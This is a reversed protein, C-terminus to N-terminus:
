QGIRTTGVHLNTVRAIQTLPNATITANSSQIGGNLDSVVVYATTVGFSLAPTTWSASTAGTVNTGEWAWQYHLTSNGTAGVSLTAGTGVFVAQDQPQVIIAPDSPTVTLRVSSSLAAGATDTIRVSFMLGDDTIATAPTTYTDSTAGTINVGNTRWQYNAPTQHSVTVSFTAQKGVSVSQPAPHQTIFPDAGVGLTANRSAISGNSDTVTVQVQGHNDALQCNTRVYVPGNTGVNSGNFTWQYSLTTAGTATVNFQASQTVFVAIDQPQATITPDPAASGGGGVNGGAFVTSIEAPTLARAYLRFDGGAGQMWCCNPYPDDGFIYTGEHTWTFIAMWHYPSYIRYYPSPYNNTQTATGDTYSIVQTPTVTIAYHHWAGLSNNDNFFVVNTSTGDSTYTHFCTQEASNRGIRWSYAREATDSNAQADLITAQNYTTNYHAWGAFTFNTLYEIGYINTVAFYQNDYSLAANTVISALPGNTLVPYNTPYSFVQASNLWGSTDPANAAGPWGGLLIQMRLDDHWEFAGIDYHSGITRPVADYDLRATDFVGADRAPSNTLLHLDPITDYNQERRMVQITGNGTAISVTLHTNDTISQVRVDINTYAWAEGSANRPALTIYDGVVLDTLFLTNSGVISTTNNAYTFGTPHITRRSNTANVFQPNGGNLWGYGILAAANKFGNTDGVVYNNSVTMTSIISADVGFWGANVSSPNNGCLVFINNLMYGNTGTGYVSDNFNIIHPQDADNGCMYFTNNEFRMNPFDVDFKNGVRIFVNNRFTWSGVLSTCDPINACTQLSGLAATSNIIYNSEILHGYSPANFSQFCDPHTGGAGNDNYNGLVNGAIHNSYGWLYVWAEANDVNSIGNNLYEGSTGAINWIQVRSYNTFSSLTLYNNTGQDVFGVQNQGVWSLVACNDIRSNFANTAMWVVPANVFGGTFGEGIVFNTLVVYHRNIFVEQVRAGYSEFVIANTSATGDYAIWRVFEPYLGPLVYVHSPAAVTSAAKQMTLWATNTTLGNNSDNGTKSVYFTGTLGVGGGLSVNFNVPVYLKGATQLVLTGLTGGYASSNLTLGPGPSTPTFEDYWSDGDGNSELDVLYYATSAALTINTSIGSWAGSSATTPADGYAMLVGDSVRVVALHHYNHSIGNLSWRAINTVSIPAGGVTFKEGVYGSFNNRVTGTFNTDLLIQGRVSCAILCLILAIRM